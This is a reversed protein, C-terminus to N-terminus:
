GCRRHRQYSCARHRPTRGPARGRGCWMRRLRAARGLSASRSRPRPTAPSTVSEGGDNRPTRLVLGSDMRVISMRPVPTRCGAERCGVTSISEPSAKCAGRFSSCRLDPPKGGAGCAADSRQGVRLYQDLDLANGPQRLSAKEVTMGPRAFCSGPIWVCSAEDTVCADPLRGRSM